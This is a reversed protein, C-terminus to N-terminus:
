KSLGTGYLNDSVVWTSIVGTIEGTSEDVITTVEKWGKLQSDYIKKTGTETESLMDANEKKLKNIKEILENM